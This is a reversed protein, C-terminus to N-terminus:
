MTRILGSASNVISVSFCGFFRPLARVALGSQIQILWVQWAECYGCQCSKERVFHLIHRKM